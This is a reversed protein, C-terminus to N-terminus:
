LMKRFYKKILERLINRFIRAATKQEPLILQITVGEKNFDTISLKKQNMVRYSVVEKASKQSYQEGIDIVGKTIRNEMPKIM